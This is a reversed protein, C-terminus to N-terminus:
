SLYNWQNKDSRGGFLNSELSCQGLGFRFNLLQLKAIDSNHTGAQVKESGRYTDRASYNIDKHLHNM